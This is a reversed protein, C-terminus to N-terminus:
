GQNGFRYTASLGWHNGDLQNSDIEYDIQVHRIGLSFNEFMYEVQLLWGSADDFELKANDFGDEDFTPSFHHTMGLGVRFKETEVFGILEVPWRTFDANDDYDGILDSFFGGQLLIGVNHSPWQISFGGYMFYTGGLDLDSHYDDGWFEVRYTAITDGGATLGAAVLPNFQVAVTTNEAAEARAASGQAFCLIMGLLSILTRM